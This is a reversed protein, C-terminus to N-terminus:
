RKLDKLVQLAKKLICGVRFDAVMFISLNILHRCFRFANPHHVALVHDRGGSRRWWESQFLISVVEETSHSVVPTMCLVSQLTGYNQFLESSQSVPLSTAEPGTPRRRATVKSNNGFSGLLSSAAAALRSM